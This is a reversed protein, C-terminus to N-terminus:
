REGDAPNRGIVAAASVMLSVGVYDAPCQMREALDGAWPRLKEPMLSLDFPAVSLLSAPLPRPVPAAGITSVSRPLERPAACAPEVRPLAAASGGGRDAVGGRRSMRTVNELDARWDAQTKPDRLHADLDFKDTM